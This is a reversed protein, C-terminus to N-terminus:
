ALLGRAKFLAVCDDFMEEVSKFRLGLKEIKSYDLNYRPRESHDEFELPINLHPYRVALREALDMIELVIASCIFRGKASANEYVLIHASAVDDIHVYGMRGYMGFTKSEGKLLELVDSATSCLDPPLPPGVIFSPLVVVLDVNNKEAFEWAAKEALIKAKGYWLQFKECLELSSWHSENLWEDPKIAERFRVSASSSTLIVRKVSSAKACSQLVNLTGKVAPDIM